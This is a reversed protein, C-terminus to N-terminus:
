LIMLGETGPDNRKCAVIHRNFIRPNRFLMERYTGPNTYKINRMHTFEPNVTRTGQIEKLM